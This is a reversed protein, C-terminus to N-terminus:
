IEIEKYDKIHEMIDDRGNYLLLKIQKIKTDKISSNDEGMKKIFEDIIKSLEPPINEKEELDFAFTAIDNLRKDILLEL